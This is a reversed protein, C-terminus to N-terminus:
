EARFPSTASNEGAETRLKIEEASQALVHGDLYRNINDHFVIVLVLLVMGLIIVFLMAKNIYILTKM